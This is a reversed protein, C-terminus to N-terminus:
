ATLHPTHGGTCRLIEERRGTGRFREAIEKIFYRCMFNPWWSLKLTEWGQWTSQAVQCTDEATQSAIKKGLTLAISASVM